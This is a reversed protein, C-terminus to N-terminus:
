KVVHSEADGERVAAPPAYYRRPLEGGYGMERFLQSGSHSRRVSAFWNERILKIHSVACTSPRAGGEDLTAVVGAVLPMPLTLAHPLDVGPRRRNGGLREGDREGSGNDGVLTVPQALSRERGRSVLYEDGCTDSTSAGCFQSGTSRQFQVHSNM